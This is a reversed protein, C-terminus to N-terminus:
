KEEGGVEAYTREPAEEAGKPGKEGIEKAGGISPHMLVRAAECVWHISLNVPRKKEDVAHNLPGRKGACGVDDVSVPTSFISLRPFNSYQVNLDRIM